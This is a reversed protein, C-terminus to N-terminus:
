PATWAYYAIGEYQYDHYNQQVYNKEAENITYFHTGGVPRFFRYVPTAGSVAGSSAYWSTGELHYAPLTQVVWDRETADITYFHTSNATNFFRYVASLGGTDSGYAYFAIGEYSFVPYTAIVYDREAVSITYFHGGTTANYFRYIPSRAPAAPALWTSLAATYATGFRGYIDIGSPATCSGSGGYLQGVLYNKGASTTFLGSGSSGGETTGSSWTNYVFNGSQDATTCNISEDAGSTCNAYGQATGKSIKQLDGAPHHVGTVATGPTPATTSWGVYSVGAPPTSNLRMFSTDTAATSYLLTAGGSLTRTASSLTGSNCSSARFFWYTTLTSAVTQSSICHNASLFYPTGSSATDNLLTGTCLYGNGGNVFIMRAVANSENSFSTSCTIDVNCSGSAGVGTALTPLSAAVQPSELLHTLRPVALRVHSPDEGSPLEVELTVTDGEIEPTWYTHADASKDGADLNRQLLTLVESGSIEFATDDDETTYVRLKASPPLQDVLVGLRVGLADTSRISVRALQGGAATPQWQLLSATAPVSATEAIARAVGIQRLG